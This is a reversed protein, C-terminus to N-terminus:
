VVSPPRQKKKGKLIYKIVFEKNELFAILVKLIDDTGRASSWTTSPHSMGFVNSASLITHRAPGTSCLYTPRPINWRWGGIRKEKKREILSREMDWMRDNWDIGVSVWDISGRRDKGKSYRCIAHEDDCEAWDPWGFSEGCFTECLILAASCFSGEGRKRALPGFIPLAPYSFRTILPLFFSLTITELYPLNRGRKSKGKGKKENEM